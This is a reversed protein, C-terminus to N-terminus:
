FYKTSDMVAIARDCLEDKQEPTIHRFKWCWGIRNCIWDIDHIHYPKCDEYSKLAKDIENYYDKM